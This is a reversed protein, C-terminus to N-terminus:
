RAAAVFEDYDRIYDAPDYGQSALVLLVTDPAHNYQTGWVMPPVYLGMDPSDLTIEERREGDDVICSLSGSVCVLLQACARHAHSGRIRANSVGFVTFVRKPVFPLDGFESAVMSGRLDDARTLGIIRVGEVVSDRPGRSIPTAVHAVARDATAYEVIVAPNGRVIAHAPVDDRAFSVACVRAHRGVSVGRRVVAGAGVVSGDHLTTVGDTAGEGPDGVVANANVLVDDHVHTGELLRAGAGILVRDGITVNREIVAYAGVSGGNGLTASPDIMASGDGITSGSM